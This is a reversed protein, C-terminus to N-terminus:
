VEHIEALYLKLTDLITGDLDNKFQQEMLALAEHPTSAKRYPRKSTLADYVDAVALIKAGFPIDEEHLGRPYGKGNLKEHHGEVLPLLSYFQELPELIKVAIDPHRKMAAFEEETLKGPKQLISEPVGIKGIDHLIGAMEIRRIEEQSSKLILAIGRSIESVRKSHGYTYPDRADIAQALSSIAELFVTELKQNLNVNEIFAGTILAIASVQRIQNERFEDLFKKGFAMVGIAGASGPLPLCLLSYAGLQREYVSLEKELELNRALLYNNHELVKSCLGREMNEPHSEHPANYLAAMTFCKNEDRLQIWGSYAGISTCSLTLISSIWLSGGKTDRELANMRDFMALGTTLDLETERTKFLSLFPYTIFTVLLLPTLDLFLRFYKFLILSSALIALILLLFVTFSALPKLHPFALFSVLGTLVILLCIVFSNLPYLVENDLLNSIFFGHIESGTRHGLPTRHVDHYFASTNGLIVIRNHFAERPLLNQFNDDVVEEFNYNHIGVSTTRPYNLFLKSGVLYHIKKGIRISHGPPLYFPRRKGPPDQASLEIEEGNYRAAALMSLSYYANNSIGNLTSDSGGITTGPRPLFATVSRIVESTERNDKNLLPNALMLDRKGQSSSLPEMFGASTGERNIIFISNGGRSGEKVLSDDLERRAGGRLFVDVVRVRAGMAEMHRLCKLYLERPIPSGYIEYTRDSIEIFAIRNEGPKQTAYTLSIYNLWYYDLQKFFNTVYLVISIIVALTTVIISKVNAPTILRIRLTRLYEKM